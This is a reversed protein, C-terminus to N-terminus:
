WGLAAPAEAPVAPQRPRVPAVSSYRAGLPPRPDADGKNPWFAMARETQATITLSPNVGLNASIASADAVHLGPCGFVRQYADIVGSTPSTGICAGGLIHATTPVDLLVENIASGASGGMLDAADRAAQNAEPIYTPNPSGEDQETTLRLKGLRRKFRISLSNDRSQMVLLILTRESWRRVSLSRLFNVPHGVVQGLFRLQRPVRGGGDVLVTALLGMANSGRPYRVPEIHTRDDPYISSTIALGESYDSDGRRHTQAGLIAESNTRVRVGLRDSLAPLRGSEKLGGLLKLTGLVGASVVVQEVRVVKRDRDRWAGSVDSVVEYGGVVPVLDVVQREPIVAAGNREALYLYNKDLTNKANHRCGIMCAGCRICGTRSPGAGGFYPDAVEQGAEGLYVGVDTPRYSDSVGLRDALEQMIVDSPTDDPAKATGLMRKAQEYHPALEKKWDTIRAWQPDDWFGDLPEYLTNAYVLSGGGVGAGSLVLVDKLLTMRQIGWMGLRPAFLFRRLRWNSSPYDQASFRKGAEFVVVKYGKETLRMATVSGGFGSGIVAVDYDLDEIGEAM